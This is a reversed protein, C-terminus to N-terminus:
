DLEVLLRSGFSDELQLVAVDVADLNHFLFDQGGIRRSEQNFPVTAPIGQIICNEGGMEVLQNLLDSRFPLALFNQQIVDGLDNM